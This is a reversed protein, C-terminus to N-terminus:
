YNTIPAHAIRSSRTKDEDTERRLNSKRQTWDAMCRAATAAQLIADESSGVRSSGEM